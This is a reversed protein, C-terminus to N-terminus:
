GHHRERRDHAHGGGHEVASGDDEAHWLAIAVSQVPQDRRRHCLNGDPWSPNPAASDGYDMAMVNVGGITVGYKLASQLVYLGDATLGTPLVPLTFWVVLQQGSAAAAQQLGAIAQSRRDIAAHDAVAAGEIDFDIHTLNYTGIVTQYAAKLASVNTIVEALEQNAAGGFSVMVDGGIQRLSGIETKLDTSYSSNVVDYSQYGGWAPEDNPGAVVFALNFFKVGQTQAAQLFNFIPWNTADVYPSFFHAPWVPAATTSVTVTITGTASAGHGDSVTYTFADSGVYGASPTYTASGNANAVVTGHQATGLSLLTLTYGAADSADALVAVTVPQNVVTSANGNGAVPPPIPTVTVAVNGVATNGHGDSVTYTFADSGLYGAVPTYTATGDSNAVVTGHQAAGVAALTLAYGNPDSAGALVSIQVARSVITTASVPGAVPPAVM